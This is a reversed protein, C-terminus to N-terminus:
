PKQLAKLEAEIDAVEDAWTWDEGGEFPEFLGKQNGYEKLMRKAEELEFELMERETHKAMTEGVGKRKKSLISLVGWLCGLGLHLCSKVLDSPMLSKHNGYEVSTNM